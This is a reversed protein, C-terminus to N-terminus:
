TPCGSAGRARCTASILAGHRHCPPLIRRDDSDSIPRHDASESRTPADGSIITVAVQDLLRPAQEAVAAKLAALDHAM